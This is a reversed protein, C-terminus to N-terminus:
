CIYGSSKIHIANLFKIEKVKAVCGQFHTIGELIAELTIGYESEWVRLCEMSITRDVPNKWHNPDQVKEFAKRLDAILYGDSWTTAEFAEQEAVVARRMQDATMGAYKSKEM